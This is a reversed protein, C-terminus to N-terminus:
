WPWLGEKPCSSPRQGSNQLGIRLVDSENVSPYADDDPHAVVVGLCRGM